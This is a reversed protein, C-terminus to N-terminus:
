SLDKKFWEITKAIGERLNHKAKWGLFDEAEKTDVVLRMMENSRYPLVGLEFGGNEPILEQITKAIDAIPHEQGSGINLVKLTNGKMDIVGAHLIADVADEVFTLDRVQEGKTMEVREGHLAKRILHPVLRKPAEYPGYMHFLRLIIVEKGFEKSYAQAFESFAAKSAGYLKVPRLPTNTTIREETQGYEFCSGTAIFRIAKDSGSLLALAGKVNTELLGKWGINTGYLVGASALHFIVSCGETLRKWFGEDESSLNGTVIDMKDRIDDIRSTDHGDRILCRIDAGCKVLQHVLNSGVFGTAGTVFVKMGKYSEKVGMADM